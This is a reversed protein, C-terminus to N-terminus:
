NLVTFYRSGIGDVRGLDDRVSWALTHLGNPLLRTDLAFSGVAGDTNAYGPFLRAVDERYLGYTPQGVPLGDVYVWITSGDTPITAPRPTLAWGFVLVTGSVTQGQGPVDITGFPLTATANACAVARSGLLTARGQGDQAWAHLVFSGNGGNPLLNTLLMYGWGARSRFPLGPYQAEIDPRAGPVFTAEGVYVHGNPQTPEGEQPDRYIRVQTVEVDDLAWGTVAVAGTLNASGNAPTDFAGFPASNPPPPAASPEYRGLHRPGGMYQPWHLRGHPAEGGFDFVWVKDFYGPVGVWYNGSVIVENRGDRDIDAIAPVLPDKLWDIRKLVLIRGSTDLVLLNGWLGQAEYPVHLVVIEPARDGMVDGVVPASNGPSGRIDVQLPWGPFVSGDGRWVDVFVQSQVVIEPVGDGDLDALAPATSYSYPGSTPWRREVKGDASFVYVGSVAGDVWGGVVIELGGDGDVDGIAPFTHQDIAYLAPFGDVEAGDHHYALLGSPGSTSGTGSVIELDGDGDLDVVAPTHREQGGVIARRPWGELERGDAHYAHLSWDEEDTFVEDIGDGDVDALTPPSGVFNSSQRPWGPLGVGSGNRAFMDPDGGYHGSFVELGPDFSLEGLAPYAAAAELGPWGAVASGDANWAYLPGAALGTAMIELEPDSDINGVLTHLGPGSFFYGPTSLAKVPFGSQLHPDVRVELTEGDPFLLTNLGAERPRWTGAFLGDEAMSDPGQGDDALRVVDGGPSVLVSVSGGPSACRINIVELKVEAGLPTLSVSHPQTRALVAQDVCTLSGIASLRRGTITQGLSPVPSGGALLLNKIERWDRSPQQAKILAAVGAAHPTAMSTGDALGYSDGPLTSLIRVGPAGLHVTTAGYGSYYAQSDTRDTATVCVVIPLDYSCPYTKFFDRDARQNGAAAFFLIGKRQHVGLADFLAQSGLGVTWSNNTALVNVGRDKLQAVYDLCGVVAAIDGSGNAGLMKCPLLTVDWSVGAVGRSDNGTAGIIGAVHTGHGNDDMPDSDGNVMDLGHCDDAHGNGDDDLGDPTCEAKNWFVNKTLDPHRYDLGSDLVAVVVRRSGRTLDWAEPAGIDAGAVGLSQGTNHLAWQTPFDPDNPIAAKGVVYNPEVYVVNPDSRLRRLARQTEGTSKLKLHYLGVVTRFERHAAAPVQALATAVAARPASAAFRVLIENPVRLSEEPASQGDSAVQLVRGDSARRVWQRAGDARVAHWLAPVSALWAVGLLFGPMTSSGRRGSTSGAM